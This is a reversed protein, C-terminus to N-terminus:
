EPDIEMYSPGELSNERMLEGGRLLQQKGTLCFGHKLLSLRLISQRIKVSSGAAATCVAQLTLAREDEWVRRLTSGEACGADLRAQLSGGEILRRVHAELEEEQAARGEASDSAHFLDDVARSMRISNYPRFYQLVLKDHLTNFLHEAHHHMHLDMNVRRRVEGSSCLATKVEAYRGALFHQLLLRLAPVLDLLPKFRPNELILAQLEGRELAAMGCVVAGLAVDEGSLVSGFSGVIHSEVSAFRRCAGAFDKQSLCQIATLARLKDRVLASTAGEEVTKTLFNGLLHPRRLDVAVTCVNLVMEETHRPMSSYDRTRTFARLADQLNGVDSHHRGLDNYAVRISEKIISAKAASFDAELRELLLHNKRETEDVWSKDFEFDPGFNIAKNSFIDCYLKSNSGAKLASSLLNYAEVAQTPFNKAIFLLRTYQNFGSYNAAYAALDVGTNNSSASMVPENM